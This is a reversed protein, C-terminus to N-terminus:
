AGKLVGFWASGLLAAGLVLNFARMTVGPQLVAGARSGVVAWIGLCPMSVMLFVASLLVYRSLDPNKGAFVGVVALAMGWTKPNVIQLAAATMGATPKAATPHVTGGPQSAIQWALISMWVAGAWTMATQVGPHTALWGGIGFGVVLVIAAAGVCSGWVIPLAAVL